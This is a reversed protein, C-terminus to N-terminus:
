KFTSNNEEYIIRCWKCWAKITSLRRNATTESFYYKDKLFEIAKENNHSIFYDYFCINSLVLKMVNIFLQNKDLQFINKALITPENGKILGLYEAASKYYQIQRKAIKAKLFNFDYSNKKNMFTNVYSIVRYIDNAQPFVPYDNDKFVIIM